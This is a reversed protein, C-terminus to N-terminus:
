KQGLQAEVIGLLKRLYFQSYHAPLNAVKQCAKEVDAMAQEAVLLDKNGYLDKPEYMGDSLHKFFVNVSISADETWTNHFWLSPLFLIDGPQLTGVLCSALAFRPFKALDPNNIDLVQSTSGDVYLNSVESPHWLTVTKTGVVQCLINDMVDYHTWVRIHKSSVRLVSSFEKESVVDLEKPITFDKSLNPIAARIDSPQKRADEGISRFYYRKDNADNNFILDILDSFPMTKFDYNKNLFDLNEGSFERPAFSKSESKKLYEIDKWLDKCTGFDLGRLIVPERGRIIQEFDSKSPSVTIKIDGRTGPTTSAFSLPASPTADTNPVEEIIKTGFFPFQDKGDPRIRLVNLSNFFNGFSFCLAGGGIICLRNRSVLTSTHKVFMVPSPPRTTPSSLDEGSFTSYGTRELKWTFTDLDLLYLSNRTLPSCGGLVALHTFKQDAYVDLSSDEEDSLSVANATHSFVPLPIDGVAEVTKWSAGDVDLVHVDNMSERDNNLGGFLVLKGGGIATMTHSYRSTPLPGTTKLVKISKKFPDLILVDNHDAFQNKGVGVTRGGFIAIKGHNEGGLIVTASHRWRAMNAEEGEWTLDWREWFMSDLSLCYVDGVPKRPSARGSIVLLKGPAFSVAAHFVRKLPVAGSVTANKWVIDPSGLLLIKLDDLRDHCQGGFVAVVETSGQISVGQVLTSTHGYRTTAHKHLSSKTKPEVNVVVNAGADSPGEPESFGTYDYDQPMLDKETPYLEGIRELLKSPDTDKVAVSVFYHQCKIYWEEFEDFEELEEVRIKEEEPLAHYQELLTAMHCSTFGLSLYRNRQDNLTPYCRIGLLPSRRVLLANRMVHGFADDPVIQEYTLYLVRSFESAAWAIVKSSDEPNMYTMVCEAFILTPLTLDLGVSVLKTRLAPLNRLDGKVLSYDACNIEDSEVGEGTEELLSSLTKDSRIIAAKRSVVDGFDTEFWHIPTKSFCGSSKLIWFSTDFGAGLSVVQVPQGPQLGVFHSILGRILKCRIYYGRNILPSRRPAKKPTYCRLFDDDFYNFRAASRKSVISDDNTGQVSQPHQDSQPEM